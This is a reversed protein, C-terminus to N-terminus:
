RAPDPSPESQTQDPLGPLKLGLTEEIDVRREGGYAGKWIKKVDGNASLLLTTPTSTLDFALKSEVTPAFLIDTATGSVASIEAEARKEFSLFIVRYKGASQQAL